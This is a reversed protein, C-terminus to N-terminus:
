PEVAVASGNQSGSSSSDTMRTSADDSELVAEDKSSVEQQSRLRTIAAKLNSQSATKLITRSEMPLHPLRGRQADDTGPEIYPAHYPPLAQKAPTQEANVSADPDIPASPAISDESDSSESRDGGSLMAADCIADVSADESSSSMELWHHLKASAAAPRAEPRPSMLALIFDSALPSAKVADLPGFPFESDGEAYKYLKKLNQFAAQRTLLKYVVAGLSWMDVLFTYSANEHAHGLGLVEPAAYGETGRGMTNLTSVDERRRKSIGFDAIKIYWEPSPDVVMINGPKLDRHVFNNGHMFELGDLLQTAIQRAEREPLPQALHTHLDGLPLYEMSIFVSDDKEFWGDATVFCHSYKPHSFKFIAELERWYDVEIGPRVFKKIEKVARKRQKLDDKRHELYVIGYAGQGLLSSRTWTEEKRLRRHRASTGAKYRVHKTTYEDPFETEIRADRVIDPLDEFRPM